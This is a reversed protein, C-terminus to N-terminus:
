AGANSEDAVGIENFLRTKSRAARSNLKAAKYEWSAAASSREDTSPM